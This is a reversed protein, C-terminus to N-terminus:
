EKGPIASKPFEFFSRVATTIQRTAEDLDVLSESDGLRLYAQGEGM